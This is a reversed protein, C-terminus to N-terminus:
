NDPDPDTLKFDCLIDKAKSRARFFNDFEYRPM